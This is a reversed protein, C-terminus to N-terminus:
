LRLLAKGPLRSFPSALAKPLARPVEPFGRGAPLVQQGNTSFFAGHRKGM